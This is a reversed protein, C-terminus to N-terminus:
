DIEVNKRGELPVDMESLEVGAEERVSEADILTVEYQYSKSVGKILLNDIQIEYTIDKEVKSPKKLGQPQWVLGGLYWNNSKRHLIQLAQKQQTGKQLMRVSASRANVHQALGVVHFSWRSYALDDMVYGLPPWSVFSPSGEPLRNEEMWWITVSNGTAGIGINLINPQLFWSRHGVKTNGSGLDEMFFAVAWVAFGPRDVTGRFLNGRSAFAGAESWCHWDSPPEHHLPRAPNARLILASEQAAAQMLEDGLSLLSTYGVQRRFYNLRRLAHERLEDSIDGPDCDIITGTWKGEATSQVFNDIYDSIVEERTRPVQELVSEVPRQDTDSPVAGGLSLAILVCLSLRLTRCLM